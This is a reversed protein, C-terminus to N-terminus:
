FQEILNRLLLSHQNSFVFIFQLCRTLANFHQPNFHQSSSTSNILEVSWQDKM